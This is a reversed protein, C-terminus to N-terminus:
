GVVPLFCVSFLMLKHKFNQFCTWDLVFLHYVALIIGILWTAVLYIYVLIVVVKSFFKYTKLRSSLAVTFWIIFSLYGLIALYLIHNTSLQENKMLFFVITLILGFFGSLFYLINAIFLYIKVENKYRIYFLKDILNKGKNKKLYSKSHHERLELDICSNLVGFKFFLCYFSLITQLLYM